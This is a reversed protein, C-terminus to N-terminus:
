TFNTRTLKIKCNLYRNAICAKKDTFMKLVNLLVKRSATGISASVFHFFLLFVSQDRYHHKICFDRMNKCQTDKAQPINFMYQYSKRQKILIILITIMGKGKESREKQQCCSHLYSSSRVKGGM